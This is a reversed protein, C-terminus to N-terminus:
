IAAPSYPSPSAIGDTDFVSDDTPDYEVDDPGVDHCHANASWQEPKVEFFVNHDVSWYYRSGGADDAWDLGLTQALRMIASGPLESLTVTINGIKLTDDDLMTIEAEDPVLQGGKPLQKQGAPRHTTGKTTTGKPTSKTVFAELEEIRANDYEWGREDRVILDKITHQTKGFPSEGFIDVRGATARKKNFIVSAFWPTGTSGIKRIMDEDTSSWQAGCNGHSHICFRLDNIRDEDLAKEIAYSLGEKMFDVETADAQQPVLFLESVYIEKHDEDLETYGFCAVEGSILEVYAWMQEWADPAM